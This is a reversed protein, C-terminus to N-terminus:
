MGAGRHPSKKKNIRNYWIIYTYFYLAKLVWYDRANSCNYISAYILGVLLSLGM